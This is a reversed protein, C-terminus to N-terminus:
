CTKSKRQVQSNFDNNVVKLLVLIHVYGVFIWFCRSLLCHFLQIPKYDGSDEDDDDGNDDGAGAGGGDGGAGGGDGGAGGGDGGSGGGDGGGGGCARWFGSEM